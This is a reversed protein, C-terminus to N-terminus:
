LRMESMKSILKLGIKNNQHLSSENDLRTNCERIVNCFAVADSKNDSAYLVIGKYNENKEEEDCIPISLADDSLLKCKINKIKVVKKTEYKNNAIILVDSFVFFQRQRNDSKRKFIFRDIYKRESKVIDFRLNKLTQSLKLCQSKNEIERGM